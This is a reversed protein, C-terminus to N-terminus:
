KRTSRRLSREDRTGSFWAYREIRPEGELYTVADELFAQQEAANKASDCAFETLWLPQRFRKKYTEVHQILYEAQNDGSPTCGVYLHIAVADVRCGACAALFADLYHFPDTDQCNGGCFNVAPSVLRLGQADAIAELERGCSPQLKLRFTPKHGSTPNTSASCRAQTLASPQRAAARDSAAGWIM